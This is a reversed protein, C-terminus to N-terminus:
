RLDRWGDCFSNIQPNFLTVLADWHRRLAARIELEHETAYFVGHDALWEAAEHPELGEHQELEERRALMEDVTLLLMREGWSECRVLAFQDEPHAHVVRLEYLTNKLTTTLSWYTRANVCESENVKRLALGVEIKSM